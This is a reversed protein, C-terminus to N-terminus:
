WSASRSCVKTRKSLSAQSWDAFADKAAAVADDVDAARPSCSRPRSSAPRRTGCTPRHADVHRGDRKGAIWHEITRM